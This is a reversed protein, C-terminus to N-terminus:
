RKILDGLYGIHVNIKRALQCRCAAPLDILVDIVLCYLLENSM